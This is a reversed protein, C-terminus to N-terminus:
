PESGELSHIVIRCHPGGPCLSVGTNGPCTGAACVVAEMMRLIPAKVQVSM